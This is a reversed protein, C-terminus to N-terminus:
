VGVSSVIASTPALPPTHRSPFFCFFCMLVNTVGGKEEGEEAEKDEKEEEEEESFRLVDGVGEGM